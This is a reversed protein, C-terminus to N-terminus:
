VIHSQRSYIGDDYTQFATKESIIISLCLIYADSNQM